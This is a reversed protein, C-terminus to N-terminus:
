RRRSGTVKKSQAVSSASAMFAKPTAFCNFRINRQSCTMVREGRFALAARGLLLQLRARAAQRQPRRDDDSYEIATKGPESPHLGTRQPRNQASGEGIQRGRERKRAMVEEDYVPRKAVGIVDLITEAEAPTPLRDLFLVGEPTATRPSPASPFSSKRGRGRRSTKPEGYLQFGERGSSTSRAPVAYIFGLRGKIRWDGNDDRRLATSASSLAEAFAMLVPRQRVSPYVDSM